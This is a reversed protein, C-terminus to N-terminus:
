GIFRLILGCCGSLQLANSKTNPLTDKFPLDDLKTYNDPKNKHKHTHTYIHTYAHAHAHTRTRTRAHTHTRMRAHM